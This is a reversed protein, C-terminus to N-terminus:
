LREKLECEIGAVVSDLEIAVLDFYSMLLDFDENMNIAEDLVKTKEFLSMAGISSAVGKLTHALHKATLIDKNTLATRLKQADKSHDQHFMVLIENFLSEDDLVNKMGIAVDIGPFKEGKNSSETEEFHPTSNNIVKNRGESKAQYLAQDASKILDELNLVQGENSTIGISTTINIAQSDSNAFNYNAVRERFRECAQMAEEVSANPLCVAFEEGGVRAVIDYERFSKNALEAFAKLVLDGADHGYSDNVQKFHDIDLMALVMPYEHTRNHQKIAKIAFEYFSKRNHLGTLYDTKALHELEITKEQLRLATRIRALLVKTIYPKTVHDAAGLDLAKVIDNDDNDSSLMIVPLHDYKENTRIRTLTQLGSFNPMHMDLLILAVDQDDISTLAGEGSSADIVNYGAQSLDAKLESLSNRDDDVALITYDSEKRM